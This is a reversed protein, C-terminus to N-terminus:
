SVLEILLGNLLAAAVISTQACLAADAKWEKVGLSSHGLVVAVDPHLAVVAARPNRCSLHVCVGGAAPSLLSPEVVGCVRAQADIAEM